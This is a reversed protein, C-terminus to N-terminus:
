GKNAVTPRRDCQQDGRALYFRGDLIKGGSGAEKGFGIRLPLKALM